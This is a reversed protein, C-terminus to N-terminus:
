VGAGNEETSGLARCRGHVKIFFAQSSSGTHRCALCVGAIVRAATTFLEIGCLLEEVVAALFVVERYDLARKQVATHTRSSARESRGWGRL